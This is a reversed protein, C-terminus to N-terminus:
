SGTIPLVLNRKSRPNRPFLQNLIEQNVAWVSDARSALIRLLKLYLVKVVAAVVPPVSPMLMRLSNTVISSLSPVLSKRLIMGVLLTLPEVCIVLDPKHIAAQRYILPLAKLPSTADVM